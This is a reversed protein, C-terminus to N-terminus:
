NAIKSRLGANYLKGIEHLFTEINSKHFFQELAVNTMTELSDNLIYQLINHPAIEITVADNPIFRLSKSFVRALLHNTDYEALSLKPSTSFWEYSEAQQPLIQNLYELLKVRAPEVYRSHFPIHGFTIEKVFINDNQLKALFARVSNTPGSVISNRSNNYGAIDIDSSFINKIIEFELNIEAM